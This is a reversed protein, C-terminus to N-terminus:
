PFQKINKEFCIAKSNNEYKGYNQIQYYGRKKYFSVARENILRTELRLFSYDLIKAHSELYSLVETGVGRKKDKAYMRKVEATSENIPRIGGCGIAEGNENYALVFLSRSVCVDNFNFSNKGSNGTILELAKSLEEILFVADPAYPSTEVIKM